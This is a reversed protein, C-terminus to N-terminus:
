GKPKLISEFQMLKEAVRAPSVEYSGEKIAQKVQEVRQSDVVPTSVVHNGLKELQVANDSISVTDATASKGTDQQTSPQDVTPKIKPDDAATPVKSPPIGNIDISM